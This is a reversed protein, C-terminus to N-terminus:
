LNAHKRRLYEMTKILRQRIESTDYLFDRNGPRYQALMDATEQVYDDDPFRTILASEIENAAKISTDEGSAGSVFRQILHEIESTM